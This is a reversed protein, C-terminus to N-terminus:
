RKSLRKRRNELETDVAIKQAADAAQDAPTEGGRTFVTLRDKQVSVLESLEAVKQQAAVLVQDFDPPATAEEAQSDVRVTKKRRTKAKAPASAASQDPPMGATAMELLDVQRLLEQTLLQHDSLDSKAIELRQRTRQLQDILRRAITEEGKRVADDALQDLRAIEAHLNDVRRQLQGEHVIAEDIRQQFGKIQRKQAKESTKVPRDAGGRRDNIAGRVKANVLLNIKKLLDSM